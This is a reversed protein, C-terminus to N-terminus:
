SLTQWFLHTSLREDLCTDKKFLLAVLVSCFVFGHTLNWPLFRLGRARQSRWKSCSLLLEFELLLQYLSFEPVVFLKFLFILLIGGELPILADFLCLTSTVSSFKGLESNCLEISCVKLPIMKPALESLSNVFSTVIIFNEERLSNTSRLTRFVILPSGNVVSPYLRSTPYCLQM